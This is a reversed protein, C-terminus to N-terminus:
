AKIKVKIYNLNICMNVFMIDLKDLLINKLLANKYDLWLTRFKPTYKKYNIMTELAYNSFIIIIM